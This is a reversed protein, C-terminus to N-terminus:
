VLYLPVVKQGCTGAPYRATGVPYNLTQLLLPSCEALLVTGALFCLYGKSCNMKGVNM